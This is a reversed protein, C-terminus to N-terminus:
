RRPARMCEGICRGIPSNEPRFVTIAERDNLPSERPGMLMLRCGAPPPKESASRVQMAEGALSIWVGSYSHRDRSGPGPTVRGLCSPGPLADQLTRRITPLLMRRGTM